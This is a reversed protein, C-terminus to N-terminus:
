KMIFDDLDVYSAGKHTFTPAFTTFYKLLNTDDLSKMNKSNALFGFMKEFAKLQDFQSKLSAIAADVVVLFYNV